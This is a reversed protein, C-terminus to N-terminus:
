VDHPPVVPSIWIRTCAPLYGRVWPRLWASIVVPRSNGPPTVRLLRYPPPCSPPGGDAVTFVAIATAGPKLTVVPVVAPSPGFVTATRRIATSTRGAATIGVVAPWGHLICPRRARSTFGLYGGATGGAALGRLVRIKLRSTRCVAARGARTVASTTRPAPSQSGAPAAIPAHGSSCAALGLCCTVAAVARVAALRTMV